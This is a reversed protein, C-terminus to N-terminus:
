TTRMIQILFEANTTTKKLQEILLDLANHPDMGTLVRRLRTMAILEDPALLAEERRTGSQLVDIAPFM